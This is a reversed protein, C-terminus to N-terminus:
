FMLSGLAVLTIVLAVLSPVVVAVGFLFALIAIPDKSSFFDVTSLM